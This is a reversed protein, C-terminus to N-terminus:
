DKNPEVIGAIKFEPRKDSDFIWYVYTHTLGIFGIELPTQQGFTNSTIMQLGISLIIIIRM